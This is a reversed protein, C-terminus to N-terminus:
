ASTRPRFELGCREKLFDKLVYVEINHEETDSVLMYKTYDAKSKAKTIKLRRVESRIDKVQEDDRLNCDWCIIGGLRRFSHDFERELNKKFEVFRLSEKGIESGHRVKVLADYGKRTDYDIIQFNFLKPDLAYMM